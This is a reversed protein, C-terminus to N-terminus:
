ESLAKKKKKGKPAKVATELPKEKEASLNITQVSKAKEPIQAAKKVEHFEVDIVDGYRNALEEPTQNETWDDDVHVITETVDRMGDFNKQAFIATAPNLVGENIAQERWSACDANVREFLAKRRKNSFGMGNLWRDVQAKTVGIARYASLNGMTVDNDQVYKLYEEYRREMTEVDDPDVVERNDIDRISKLARKNFGTDRVRDWMEKKDAM